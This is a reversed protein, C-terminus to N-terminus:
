TARNTEAERVLGEGEITAAETNLLFDLREEFEEEDIEGAAYRRKLMEIADEQQRGEEATEPGYIMTAIEDGWLFFVPTLLLWGIITIAEGGLPVGAIGLLGALPLTVIAILLWLSDAVFERRTDSM